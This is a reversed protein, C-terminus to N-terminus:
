HLLAGGYKVSPINNQPNLAEGKKKWIYRKDNHGFLEIKTEDSWLVGSILIKTWM